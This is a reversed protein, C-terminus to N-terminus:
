LQEINIKLSLKTQESQFQRREYSDYYYRFNDVHAHANDNLNIKNKATITKYYKVAKEDMLGFQRKKINVLFQYVEDDAGEFIEDFLGTVIVRFKKTRSDM